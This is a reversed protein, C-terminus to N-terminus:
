PADTRGPLQPASPRAPRAPPPSAMSFISADWEGPGPKPAPAAPKGGPSACRKKGTKAFILLRPPTLTSKGTDKNRNRLCCSKLCLLVIGIFFIKKYTPNSGARKRHPQLLSSPPFNGGSPMSNASPVGTFCSIKASWVVVSSLPMLKVAEPGHFATTSSTGMDFSGAACCASQTM